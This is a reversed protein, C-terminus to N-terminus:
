LRKFLKQYIITRVKERMKRDPIYSELKSHIEKEIKKYASMYEKLIEKLTEKKKPIKIEFSGNLVSYYIWQAEEPSKCIIKKNDIKVFFGKLDSGLEAEGSPVKRIECEVDKVFDDPFKKLNKIEIERLIVEALTEPEVSKPKKKKEVSKAKEIREKVLQIVAKYVELQEEETLGLIEGMVIKDLERRDPKIKELSLEEPSTAGLEEFINGLPRTCIKEFSNKIRNRLQRSLQSLNIIPLRKWDVLELNLSGQGLTKRGEIEILLWSITSNLIACIIKAIEDPLNCICFQKSMLIEKPSYFSIFREFLIRPIALNGKRPSFIFWRNNQLLKFESKYQETVLKLYKWTESKKLEEDIKSIFIIKKNINKILISKSDRPSDFIEELFISELKLQSIKKRPLILLQNAGTGIGLELKSDFSALLKSFSTLKKSTLLKFFIEPARLYKGWKSGKYNKEEKDYGEEWLESQKKVYIKIKDDEYMEKANEIKDVLEEVLKFRKTDNERESIIESLKVKLKVFKVLNNNREEESDCKELITIATNIDADPFWREVASEIIAIIKCNKLFFEQLYKGYDVDLWSNSTVYGFRGGNKLFALGHLFFYAYIGARKGLKVKKGWDCKLVSQLKDKYKEVYTELEEQRTYPPNGVVADFIIPIEVKMKKGSLTEITESGMKPLKAKASPIIDFFDKCLVLPYNEVESLDRAALNIMTLHAAFKSIDDGLLQNLIEKHTKTHNLYKIRAYARVLFTGAGCGFDAIKDDANRICFTNIIDVVDPNTYYQGLKHREDDPILRDFIHGLDRYGLKAFNYKSFNNIFSILNPLVNQPIPIKELFDFGFITEYDRTEKKAIEFYRQLEKKFQSEDEIDNPLKLIPVKKIKRLTNYFMIKNVLLYLFQRAVKEFDEDTSPINWGQSVFWEILNERFKANSSFQRKIELTIPFYLSDVIIRLSCIFFEDIPITPLIKRETYIEVLDKLFKRLGEKIKNEVEPYDIERLDRIKALHYFGKRREEWSLAEEEFTKWLILENINCTAFFPVQPSAASAKYQADNILNADLPYWYPQKLEVLCVPKKLREKWIILDPFRIKSDGPLIIEIQADARDLPLNEEKIIENIWEVFRQRISDEM